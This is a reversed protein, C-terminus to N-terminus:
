MKTNNTESRIQKNTSIRYNTGAAAINAYLFLSNLQITLTIITIMITTTTAQLKNKSTTL